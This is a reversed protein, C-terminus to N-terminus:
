RTRQRYNPASPSFDKQRLVSINERLDKQNDKVIFLYDAHKEEVVYRATKVQTHLADATVVMGKIDLNNLLPKIMPIENTKEGVELQSVTVAENHLFASLLHVQTGNDRKAGKLTKGDIAIANDDTINLLWEGLCQEVSEVDASQLVRRITPESPPIFYKRKRDFRARLRKLQNQTLRGAWEALSAYTREGGLLAAIAITLVSFYPHRIGRSKRVDPLRRLRLLLDEMQKNSLTCSQMPWRWSPHPNLNALNKRAFKTLPYVLIQKPCNNFYYKKGIKSFGKTQGLVRWNAARYCAGTFRPTEVFTEALLIPHGYITQWDHSLRKLNLSLVRSALNRIKLDPLILFRTNNAILHLRQYQIIPSWGIWQDRPKCKLAAAQWGLLALWCDEFVAVYRLAKGVLSKLGLYHHQRVLADWKKRETRFIPRVQVNNIIDLHHYPIHFINRNMLM